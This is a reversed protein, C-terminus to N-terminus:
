LIRLVSVLTVYFVVLSMLITFVLYRREEKKM